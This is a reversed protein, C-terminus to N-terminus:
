YKMTNCNFYNDKRRCILLVFFLNLYRSFLLSLSTILFLCHSLLLINIYVCIFFTLTIDISLYIPMQTPIIYPCLSLFLSFYISLSLSLCLSVSLALSICLCLCLCLCLSVCLSISLSLSRLAIRSFTGSIPYFLYLHISLSLSLDIYYMCLSPRPALLFVSLYVLIFM